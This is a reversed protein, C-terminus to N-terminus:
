LSVGDQAKGVYEFALRMARYRVMRATDVVRACSTYEECCGEQEM